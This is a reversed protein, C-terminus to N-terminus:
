TGCPNSSGTGNRRLFDSCEPNTPESDPIGIHRRHQCIAPTDWFQPTRLYIPDPARFLFLIIVTAWHTSELHYIISQNNVWLEQYCMTVGTETLTSGCSNWSDTGFLKDTFYIHRRLSHWLTVFHNNRRRFSFPAISSSSYKQFTNKFFKFMKKNHVKNLCNLCKNNTIIKTM